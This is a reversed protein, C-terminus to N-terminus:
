RHSVFPTCACADTLGPRICICTRCPQLPPAALHHMIICRIPRGPAPDSAAPPGVMDNLCHVAAQAEEPQKFADLSAAYQGWIERPWWMRPRPEENIDEQVSPLRTTSLVSLWRLKQPPSRSQQTPGTGTVAPTCNTCIHLAQGRYARQQCPPCRQARCLARLRALICSTHCRALQMPRPDRGTSWLRLPRDRIVNPQPSVAAGGSQGHGQWSM